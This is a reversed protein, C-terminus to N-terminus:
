PSLCSTHTPYYFLTQRFGKAYTSDKGLKLLTFIRTKRWIKPINKTLMHRNMLELMWKRMLPGFYKLEETFINELRIAKRTNIGINLEVLSLQM